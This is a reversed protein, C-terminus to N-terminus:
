KPPVSPLSLTFVAGQDPCADAWLRGQHAEIISRCIPLGMGLGHAKNTYFPEFWKQPDEARGPGSDAVRLRVADGHASTSLWIQREDEAQGVLADRANTILNLFVQQLQVRDAMVMAHAASKERIVTVGHSALESKMLTLVSDLCEDIDLPVPHVEGRELLARLRKIVDSARLDESVIDALIESVEEIPPADRQILRRAAQANSLISGLPKNLEHALACSLEGLTNVRSLHALENRNRELQANSEAARKRAAILLAILVSQIVLVALASLVMGRHDDWLSPPEFLFTSQPPLQSKPIKWRDLERRDYAPPSLTVAQLDGQHPNEGALIAAGAAAAQSGIRAMDVLPGGVIGRGLQERSFGFVPAGVHPHIQDLADQDLFPVGAVDRSVIGCFIASDPPLKALESKLRAIPRDDLWHFNIDPALPTWEDRVQNMWFRDVPAAGSVVYVNRTRPLVTRINRLIAPLDVNTYSSAVPGDEDPGPLRRKEVGITLIPATPFLAAQNRLTFFMAPAGVAAVLDPEQDAFVAALFDILPQENAVGDFRAMELSADLFEIPRLTKQALETRFSRTASGFPPFDRGFSHLILVRYPVPAEALCREHPMLFLMGLVM